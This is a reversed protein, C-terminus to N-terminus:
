PAKGPKAPSVELIWDSVLALVEISMTEEITGYETVLGTKAHQFLHNLGPMRKTTARKNKGKKLAKEIEPLNQDADVQLDLAGVLALVPVKLKALVPRPDHAMFTRFWKSFLVDIQPKIAADDVPGSARLIAAVKERAKAEDKEKALTDFIERQQKVAKAVEEDPLGSKKTILETQKVVIQEGPVGTGALMVVFAIDENKAAAAPGVIGGESHGIVGVRAKDIEPQSRVFAVAANVDAALIDTTVTSLDGKSGGVGRDDLRLTAIGHKALHDALVLFPKHEFLTEDRDQAGSGTILIAAPHPGPGAPLALTGALETDGSTVVVDRTPYDFPPKPTQPRKPSTIDAYTKADIEAVACPFQAGAQELECQTSEGDDGLTANWKAAVIEISFSLTKGDYIVNQLPLGRAGQLPIDITGSYSVDKPTLAVFFPLAGGPLEVQGSFFKPGDEPEPDQKTPPTTTPPTATTPTETPIPRCALLLSAVSLRRLM